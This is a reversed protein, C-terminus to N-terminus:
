IRPRVTFGLISLALDAQLNGRGHSGLHIRLAHCRPEAVANADWPGRFSLLLSLCFGVIDWDGFKQPFNGPVLLNNKSMM